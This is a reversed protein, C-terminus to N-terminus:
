EKCEKYDNAEEQLEKYFKMLERGEQEANEKTTTISTLPELEGYQNEYRVIGHEDNLSVEYCPRIELHFGDELPITIQKGSLIDVANTLAEILEKTVEINWGKEVEIQGTLVDIMRQTTM